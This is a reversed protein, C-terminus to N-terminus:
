IRAITAKIVTATLYCDAEVMRIEVGADSEYDPIL